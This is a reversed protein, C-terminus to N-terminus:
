LEWPPFDIQLEECDAVTPEPTLLWLLVTTYVAQVIDHSYHSKYALLSIVVMVMSCVAMGCIVYMRPAHRLITLMMVMGHFTHSSFLLDGCSGRVAVTSMIESVTSPPNWFPPHCYAAPNPELTLTYSLIRCVIAISLIKCIRKCINVSPVPISCTAVDLGDGRKKTLLMEPGGWPVNNLVFRAICLTLVMGILIYLFLDVIWEASPPFVGAFLRIGLDELPPPPGDQGWIVGELYYIFNHMVLNFYEAFFFGVIWKWKQKLLAFELKAQWKTEKWTKIRIQGWKNRHRNSNGIADGSTRAAFLMSFPLLSLATPDRRLCCLGVGGEAERFSTSAASSMPSSPPDIDIIQFNERTSGDGDTVNAVADNDTMNSSSDNSGGTM